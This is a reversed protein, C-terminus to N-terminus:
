TKTKGDGFSQMEAVRRPVQSHRLRRKVLLDPAEFPLQPMQWVAIKSITARFWHPLQRM